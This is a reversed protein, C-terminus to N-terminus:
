SGDAVRLILKGTVERAELRRHAERAEGLPLAEFEVPVKGEAVLGLAQRAAKRARAPDAVNFGGVNFGLVAKNSIWLENTSLRLDGSGSANGVVLLRGMPALAEMSWARAEGGVPDVVIDVRSGQTEEAVAEVFGDRLLAVDYGLSRASEVKEQSGVVAFVRGAGLAKAMLGMASGLGGTAGHVLVSEGKRMRAVETLAVYATTVNGSAAAAVGLDLGLGDLPVVMPASVLAVDAYGGQNMMTLTVVPQGIELGEVGGGVARIRGSVEFGPVFPVQAGMEGRRVLVDIFGVAAYSVDISVQNEGPEPEDIGDRLELVEPGGLRDVRVARV